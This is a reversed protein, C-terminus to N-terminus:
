AALAEAGSEGPLTILILAVGLSDRVNEDDDVVLVNCTRREASGGM